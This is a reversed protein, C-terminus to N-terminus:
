LKKGVARELKSEGIAQVKAEDFQTQECSGEFGDDFEQFSDFGVEFLEAILVDTLDSSCNVKITIFEM